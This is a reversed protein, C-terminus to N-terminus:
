KKVLGFRVQEGDRVDIEAPTTARYSTDQDDSFPGVEVTRSKGVSGCNQLQSVLEAIGRDDTTTGRAFGPQNPDHVL